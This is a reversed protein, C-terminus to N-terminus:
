GIASSASGRHEYMLGKFHHEILNDSIKEAYTGDWTLDWPSGPQHTLSSLAIGGLKGYKDFVQEVVSREYADLDIRKKSIRDTVPKSGFKKVRHYLVPIVPGYKWAEVDEKILARSYLGLMWGHAIYTLKILEMPTMATNNKEALDLFHQGIALASKM